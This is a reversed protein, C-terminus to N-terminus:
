EDGLPDGVDTGTEDELPEAEQPEEGSKEPANVEARIAETLIRQYLAIYEEKTIQAFRWLLTNETQKWDAETDRLEPLDKQKVSIAILLRFLKEVWPEKPLQSLEFKREFVLDFL